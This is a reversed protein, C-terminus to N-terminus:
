AELFFDTGTHRSTRAAARTSCIVRSALCLRHSASTQRHVRCAHLTGRVCWNGLRLNLVSAAWMCAAAVTPCLRRYPARTHLALESRRTLGGAQDGPPARRTSEGRRVRSARATSVPKSVPRATTRRNISLAHRSPPTRAPPHIACPLSRGAHQVASTSTFTALSSSASGLNHLASLCLSPVCALGNHLNRPPPPPPSSSALPLELNKRSRAHWPRTSQNRTFCHM